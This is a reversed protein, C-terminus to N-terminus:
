TEDGHDVVGLGCCLLRTLFGDKHEKKKKTVPKESMGRTIDPTRTRHVIRIPELFADEVGTGTKASTGVCCIGLNRAIEQVDAFDIENQGFDIVDLKTAVLCMQVRKGKGGPMERLRHYVAEIVDVTSRAGLSCVLLTVHSKCVYYSLRDISDQTTLGESPSIEISIPVGEVLAQKTAVPGLSM